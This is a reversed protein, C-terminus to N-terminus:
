KQTHLKIMTTTTEIVIFFNSNAFSQWRCSLMFCVTSVDTHDQECWRWRQVIEKESYLHICCMVPKESM